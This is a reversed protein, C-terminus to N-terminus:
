PRCYGGAAARLDAFIDTGEDKWGKTQLREFHNGDNYRGGWRNYPSLDEWWMGLERYDPTATLYKKDKFALLDVALKLKHNSKPHSYSGKVGYDGHVRPDRFLDGGRLRYGTEFARMILRAADM